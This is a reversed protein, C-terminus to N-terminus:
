PALFGPAAFKKCAALQLPHPVRVPLLTLYVPIPTQSSITHYPDFVRLVNHQELISLLSSMANALLCLGLSLNSHQDVYRSLM